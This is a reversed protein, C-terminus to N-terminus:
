ILTRKNKLAILNASSHVLGDNRICKRVFLESSRIKLENFSADPIGTIIILRNKFCEKQEIKSNLNIYLM